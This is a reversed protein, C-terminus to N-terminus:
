IMTRLPSKLPPLVKKKHLWFLEEAEPSLRESIGVDRTQEGSVAKKFWGRKNIATKVNNKQRESFFRFLDFLTSEGSGNAGLFVCMNPLHSISAETFVIFRQIRLKEIKM